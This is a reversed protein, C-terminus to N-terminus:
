QGIAVVVGSGKNWLVLCPSSNPLQRELTSFCAKRLPYGQGFVLSRMTVVCAPALFFVSVVSLIGVYLADVLADNVRSSRPKQTHSTTVIHAPGQNETKRKKYGSAVIDQNHM